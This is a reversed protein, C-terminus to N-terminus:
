SNWILEGELLLNPDIVPLLFESFTTGQYRVLLVGRTTSYTISAIANGLSKSVKITGDTSKEILEGLNEIEFQFRLEYRAKAIIKKKKKAQLDVQIDAVIWNKEEFIGSIFNIGLNFNDPKEFSEGIHSIKGSILNYAVLHIKEPKLLM